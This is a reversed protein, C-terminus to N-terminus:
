LFKSFLFVGAVVLFTLLFINYAWDLLMYKYGINSSLIYNFRVQNGIQLDQSNLVKVMSAEYEELPKRDLVMFNNEELNPYKPEIEKAFYKRIFGGFPKASLIALILSIMIGIMIIVSILKGSQVNAQIYSQFVIIGSVIAANIRILIAAKKDAIAISSVMVKNQNRLYTHVSKRPEKKTHFIGKKESSVKKKNKSFSPEQKIVIDKRSNTEKNSQEKSVVEIPKNSETNKNL